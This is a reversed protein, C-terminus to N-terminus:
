LRDRRLILLEMHETRKHGGPIWESVSQWFINILICTPDNKGKVLNGRM